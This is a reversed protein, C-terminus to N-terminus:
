GGGGSGGGPPTVAAPGHTKSTIFDRLHMWWNQSIAVILFTGLMATAVLRHAGTRDEANAEHAIPDL